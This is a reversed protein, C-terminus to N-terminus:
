FLFSSLLATNVLLCETIHPSEYFTRCLALYMFACMGNLKIEKRFKLVTDIMETPKTLDGNTCFTRIFCALYPDSSRVRDVDREDYSENEIAEKCVRM